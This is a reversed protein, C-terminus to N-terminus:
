SYAPPASTDTLQSLRTDGTRQPHLVAPPQQQEALLQRVKSSMPVPPSLAAASVDGMASDSPTEGDQSPTSVSIPPASATVPPRYPEISYSSSGPSSAPSAPYTAPYPEVLLSSPGRIGRMPPTPAPNLDDAASGSVATYKRRRLCFILAGLIALGGVVGVVAGVITGTKSKHTAAGVIPSGSSGASAANGSSASSPNSSASSGLSSGAPNASAPTTPSSSSSSSAAQSSLNSSSSSRLTGGATNTSAPSTTTGVPSTTSSSSPDAQDVTVVAYDFLGAGGGVPSSNLAWTVTHESQADLDNASFFLSNYAYDQGEYLHVSTKAPDNMAFSISAPNIVDIGYIYVASGQFTFSGSLLSGDHWTSDYAQGADPQALCDSCPATPTVARWSGTWTWYTNDTDDVTINKLAAYVRASPSTALLALLVLPITGLSLMTAPSLISHSGLGAPSKGTIAHWATKRPSNILWLNAYIPASLPLNDLHKKRSILERHREHKWVELGTERSGPLSQVQAVLTSNGQIPGIDTLTEKERTDERM